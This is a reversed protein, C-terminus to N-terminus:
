KLDCFSVNAERLEFPKCSSPRPFVGQCIQSWALLPYLKQQLPIESPTNIKHAPL